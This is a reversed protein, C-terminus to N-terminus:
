FQESVHMALGEATFFVFTYSALRVQDGNHVPATSTKTLWTDNIWTGNKSGADGLLYANKKNPDALLFAHYKSLRPLAISVDTNPARGIGVRSGFAAGERKILPYILGSHVIPVLKEVMLNSETLFATQFDSDEEQGEDGMRLLVPHVYTGVFVTKGKTRYLAVLDHLSEREAAVTM